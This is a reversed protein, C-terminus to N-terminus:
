SALQFGIIPGANSSDGADHVNIAVRERGRIAIQDYEFYRQDSTAVENSGTVEGFKMGLPFAGLFMFVTTAGPDTAPCAQSFEVPFGMFRPQNGAALDATTNGGAAAQLRSLTGYWVASHMVWVPSAQLAYGPLTGIGAVVEALTIASFAAGTLTVKSASGLSSRVGTVGGYTSTGDGLFIAQDEKLGVGRAWSRTWIDAVSIAADNMLESSIKSLGMLKQATLNVNDFDPRDQSTEEANEGQWTPIVDTGLRPYMLTDRSMPITGAVRRGAGYEEKLEILENSFELPVLAGGLSNNTTSHAKGIIAEDNAKQAYDVSKLSHYRIFAGMYEASEGDEFVPRKRGEGPIYVKGGNKASDTYRKVQRDRGSRVGPAKNGQHIGPYQSKVNSITRANEKRRQASYSRTAKGFDEEDEEDEMKEESDDEEDEGTDVELRSLSDGAEMTLIAKAGWAKEVDVPKGDKDEFEVVNEDIWALLEKLKVAGKYGADRAMQLLQKRNM